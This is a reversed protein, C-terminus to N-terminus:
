FFFIATDDAFTATECFESTPVDSTFVNYLTPSLIAGQPVGYPIEHTPSKSNGISVQFSRGKIFSFILKALFLDCGWAILKHLLADHWVSDFARQSLLDALSGIEPM